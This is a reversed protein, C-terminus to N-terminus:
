IHEGQSNSLDDELEWGNSYQVNWIYKQLKIDNTHTKRIPDLHEAKNLENASKEPQRVTKGPM